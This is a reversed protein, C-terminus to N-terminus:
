WIHSEWPGNNSSCNKIDLWGGSPLTFNVHLHCFRLIKSFIQSHIYMQQKITKDDCSNCAKTAM